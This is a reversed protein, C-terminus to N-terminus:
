HLYIDLHKWKDLIKDIRKKTCQRTIGTRRQIESHNFDCDMYTTIWLREIESLKTLMQNLTVVRDMEELEEVEYVIDFNLETQQREFNYYTNRVVIFIYSKLNEAAEFLDTNELYNLSVIQALEEREYLTCGIKNSCERIYNFIESESNM